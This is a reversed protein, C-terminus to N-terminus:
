HKHHAAPRIQEANELKGILKQPAHILTPLCQSCIWLEDGNYRLHLLPTERESQKCNLCHLGSKSSSM